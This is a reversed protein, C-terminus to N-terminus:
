PVLGFVAFLVFQIQDIGRTVDIKGVFYRPAEASALTGQQHDISRLSDLRLCHRVHMHSEIVVQLNKRHDVFNIKRAGIRFPYLFLDLVHNSDIGGCGDHGAGLFPDPGFVNELADDFVKWGWLADDNATTIIRIKSPAIRFPVLIRM